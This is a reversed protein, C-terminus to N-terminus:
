INTIFFQFPSLNLKLRKYNFQLILKLKSKTTKPFDLRATYQTSCPNCNLKFTGGM